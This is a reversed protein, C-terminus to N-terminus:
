RASTNVALKHSGRGKVAKKPFHIELRGVYEWRSGMESFEDSTVALPDKVSVPDMVRNGNKLNVLIMKGHDCQVLMSMGTLVSFVDGGSYTRETKIKAKMDM